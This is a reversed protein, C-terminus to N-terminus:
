VNKSISSNLNVNFDNPFIIKDLGSFNKIDITSYKVDRVEVSKPDILKSESWQNILKFKEQISYEIKFNKADPLSVSIISIEYVVSGSWEVNFNITEKALIYPTFFLFFLVVPRM